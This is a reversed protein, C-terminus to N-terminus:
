RTGIAVTVTAPSAGTGVTLVVPVSNGAPVDSALRANVQMLGATFGPAGGAYVVTAPREGVTVQVPLKPRPLPEVSPTLRGDSPQPDSLGEGTAFLVIVDGAFAPNAVSNVTGNQNLIAGPGRGSADLSFIAPSVLAIPMSVRNSTKNQYELQVDVITKDSIAYPVIVSVQKRSSFIMPAAQGDFLVRTGGVTTTLSTGDATLQPGALTEPGLGDGFLSVIEGPALGGSAYSAGNLIGEASITPDVADPPPGPSGAAQKATVTKGAVTLIATREPGTNATVRFAVSGVLQGLNQGVVSIWPQDASAAWVCDLASRTVQVGKDSETAEFELAEPTVTFTCNTQAQALSALLFSATLFHFIRLV